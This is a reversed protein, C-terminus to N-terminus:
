PKGDERAIRWSARAHTNNKARIMAPEGLVAELADFDPRIGNFHLFREGIDNSGFGAVSKPEERPYHIATM